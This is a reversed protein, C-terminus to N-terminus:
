ALQGDGQGSQDGAVEGPPKEGHLLFQFDAGVVDLAKIGVLHDLGDAGIDFCAEGFTGPPEEPKEVNSAALPRFGSLPQIRPIREPTLEQVEEVGLVFELDLM